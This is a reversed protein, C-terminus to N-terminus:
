YQRFFRSLSRLADLLEAYQRLRSRRRHFVGRRGHGHAVISITERTHRNCLFSLPLCLLMQRGRKKIWFFNCFWVAGTPTALLQRSAARVPVRVDRGGLHMLFGFSNPLFALVHQLVNAM